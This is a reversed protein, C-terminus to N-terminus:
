PFVESLVNIQLIFIAAQEQVHEFSHTTAEVPENMGIAHHAVMIMQENLRWLLIEPLSHALQVTEVGLLEVSNMTADPM